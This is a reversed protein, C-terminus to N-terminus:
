KEESLYAKILAQTGLLGYGEDLLMQYKALVDTLVPLEQDFKAAQEQVLKMDKVFHHIYFGPTTDGSLIKPGNNSLQWSGAAGKSIANLVDAPDIGAKKAYVIAETCAAISGAVAIQNAMKTHQGAGAAGMYCLNTGLLALLEVVQDYVERQGGVMISLTANRAGIDGGSVPADLVFVQRDIGAETLQVALDPSSTTMDMVITGPKVNNLIGNAGFYIEEVDKPYGVMTIVIDADKVADATSDKWVAGNAILETAKEKTRTTITLPYGANLLHSAMAKGMVGTGIWAIKKM